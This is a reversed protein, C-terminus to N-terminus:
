PTLEKGTSLGDPPPKGQLIRFWGQPAVESLSWAEEIGATHGSHSLGTWPGASLGEFSFFSDTCALDFLSLHISGPRCQGPRSDDPCDPVGQM